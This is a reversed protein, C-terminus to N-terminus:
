INFLHLPTFLYLICVKEDDDDDDDDYDDYNQEGIARTNSPIATGSPTTVFRV